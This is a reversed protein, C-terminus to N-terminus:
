VFQTRAVVKCDSLVAIQFSGSCFFYFYFYVLSACFMEPLRSADECARRQLLSLRFLQNILSASAPKVTVLGGKLSSKISTLCHKHVNAGALCYSPLVVTSLYQNPLSSYSICSLHIFCFIFSSICALIM